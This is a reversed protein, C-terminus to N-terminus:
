RHELLGATRPRWSPLSSIVSLQADPYRLAYKSVCLSLWHESGATHGRDLDACHRGQGPRALPGARVPLACIGPCSVRFYDIQRSLDFACGPWRTESQCAKAFCCCAVPGFGLRPPAPGSRRSEQSEGPSFQERSFNAGITPYGRRQLRSSTLQLLASRGLSPSSLPHQLAQPEGAGVHAAGLQNHV